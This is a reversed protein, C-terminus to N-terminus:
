LNQSLREGRDGLGPNKAAAMVPALQGVRPTAEVEDAPALAAVVAILALWLRRM